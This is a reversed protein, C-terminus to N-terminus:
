NQCKNVHLFIRVAVDFIWNIISDILFGKYHASPADTTLNITWLQFTKLVVVIKASTM